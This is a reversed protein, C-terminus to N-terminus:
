AFQPEWANWVRMDDLPFLYKKEGFFARGPTIDFVSGYNELYILNSAKRKIRRKHIQGAEPNTIDTVVFVERIRPHRKWKWYGDSHSQLPERQVNAMFDKSRKRTQRKKYLVKYFLTDRYLFALDSGVLNM